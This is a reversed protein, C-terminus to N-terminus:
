ATSCLKGVDQIFPLCYTKPQSPLSTTPMRNANLLISAMLQRGPFRSMASRRKASSSWHTHGRAEEAHKREWGFAIFFPRM